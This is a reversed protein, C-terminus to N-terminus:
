ASQQKSSSSMLRAGAESSRELQRASRLIQPLLPFIVIATAISVCATLLKLEGQLRYIPDWVIIIGVIHTTGCLLIFAAFLGLIWKFPFQGHRYIVIALALPISYYAIAIILDSIVHM